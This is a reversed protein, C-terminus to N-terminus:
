LNKEEKQPYFVLFLLLRIQTSYHMDISCLLKRLHQVIEIYQGILVAKNNFIPILHIHTDHSKKM